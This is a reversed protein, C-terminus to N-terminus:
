QLGDAVPPTLLATGVSLLTAGSGGEGAFPTSASVCDSLMSAVDSDCPSAGALTCSSAAAACAKDGNGGLKGPGVCIHPRDGLAEGVRRSPVGSGGKLASTWDGGDPFM